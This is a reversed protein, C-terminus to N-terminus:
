PTMDATGAGAGAAAASSGGSGDCGGSRGLPV